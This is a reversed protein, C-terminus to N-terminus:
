ESEAALRRESEVKYYVARDYHLDARQACNEAEIDRERASFSNEAVDGLTRCRSEEAMNAWSEAQCVWWLASARHSKAMFKFKDSELDANRAEDDYHDRAISAYGQVDSGLEDRLDNIVESVNDMNNVKLENTLKQPQTTPWSNIM